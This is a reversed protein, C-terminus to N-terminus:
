TVAWNVQTNQCLIELRAIQMYRVEVRRLLVRIQVLSYRYFFALHPLDLLRQLAQLHIIQTQLILVICNTIGELPHHM